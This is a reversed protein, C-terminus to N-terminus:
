TKWEWQKARLNPSYIKRFVNWVINIEQSVAGHMKSITGEMEKMYEGYKEAYKEVMDHGFFIQKALLLDPKYIDQSCLLKYVFDGIYWEMALFFMQGYVM